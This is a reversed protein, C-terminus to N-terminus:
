VLFKFYYYVLLDLPFLSCCTLISPYNLMQFSQPLFLLFHQLHFIIHCFHLISKFLEDTSHVCSFALVFKCVLFAFFFILLFSTVSYDLATPCYCFIYSRQLSFVLFPLSLLMFTQLFQPQYNELILPLCWVVSEPLEFFM